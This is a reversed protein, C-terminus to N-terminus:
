SRKTARVTRLPTVRDNSAVVTAFREDGKVREQLGNHFVDVTNAHRAIEALVYHSSIEGNSAHGHHVCCIAVQSPPRSVTFSCHEILVCQSQVVVNTQM